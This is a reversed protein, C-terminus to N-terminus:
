ITRHKWVGSHYICYATFGIALLGLFVQALLITTNFISRFAQVARLRPPINIGAEPIIRYEGSFELMSDILLKSLAGAIGFYSNNNYFLDNDSEIDPIVPINDPYASLGSSTIQRDVVANVVRKVSFSIYLGSSVAVFVILSILYWHKRQWAPFRSILFRDVFFSCLVGIGAFAFYLLRFVM